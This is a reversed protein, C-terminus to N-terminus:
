KFILPLLTQTGAAGSKARSRAADIPNINFLKHDMSEGNNTNDGVIIHLVIM